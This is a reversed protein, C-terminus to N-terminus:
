ADKVVGPDTIIEILDELESIAKTYEMYSRHDDEAFAFLEGTIGDRNVEDRRMGLRYAHDGAAFNRRRERGLAEIALKLAKVQQRHEPKIIAPKGKIAFM